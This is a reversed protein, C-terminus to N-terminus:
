PRSPSENWLRATTLDALRSDARASIAHEMEGIVLAVRRVLDAEDPPARHGALWDQIRAPRIGIASAIAQPTEFVAYIRTLDSLM